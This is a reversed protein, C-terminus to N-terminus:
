RRRVTKQAEACAHLTEFEDADLVADDAFIAANEKVQRTSNVNCTVSVIGDLTKVFRLAWDTASREPNAETLVALAEDKLTPRNGIHLPAHAVIPIGAETAAEYCEKGGKMFWDYYNVKMIVFDWPYLELHKALNDASLESSFGLYKVKGAERQEFLFDTAGSDIDRMRTHDCVGEVSYLDICDTQLKKLQKDFVVKFRPDVLELYGTSFHLPQDPHASAYEGLISETEGKGHSYSTDIFNVGQELAADCILATAEADVRDVRTVDTIPLRKTGLGYRSLEIDGLKRYQM